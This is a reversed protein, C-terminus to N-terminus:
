TALPWRSSSWFASIKLLLLNTREAKMLVCWQIFWLCYIKDYLCTESYRGVYPAWLLRSKVSVGYWYPGKRRAGLIALTFCPMLDDRHTKWVLWLTQLVDCGPASITNGPFHIRARTCNVSTFHREYVEDHPFSRIKCFWWSNLLMNIDFLYVTASCIVFPSFKRLLVIPPIMLSESTM